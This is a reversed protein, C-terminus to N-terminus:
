EYISSVCDILEEQSNMADAWYEATGRDSHLTHTTDLSEVKFSDAGDLAMRLLVAVGRSTGEKTSMDMVIECGTCDALMQRWLANSELAKGSCVIRIPFSDAQTSRVAQRIRGVIAHIRLTVGELCGRVFHEPKTERTLGVMAGTAGSRFGTSREGSFFPVVTPSRTSSSSTALPLQSAARLCAQFADSSVPGLNLLQAMWEVVSGGDTLAGGVLVHSSNIRYCFLGPQVPCCCDTDNSLPLPLCVRAAASTGVTCAIREISSCKSGINACAGDGLGFFLRAGRLAPFRSVYSEVITDKTWELVVSDGDERGIGTYDVLPPLTNRCTQPLLNLIGPDYYCAAIHLLGCWSAESYSIPLCKRGTWRGLCCSALTQWCSVCSIDNEEKESYLVRFQSM